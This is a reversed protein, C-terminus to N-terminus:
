GRGGGDLSYINPEPNLSIPNLICPAIVCYGNPFWVFSICECSAAQAHTNKMTRVVGSGAGGGLLGTRSTAAIM